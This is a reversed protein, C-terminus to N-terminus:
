PPGFSGQILNLLQDMIPDHFVMVVITAISLFPGYPIERTRQSILKVLAYGLGFFPALFFAVTPSQWGLMAGVGAGLVHFDAILQLDTRASGEGAFANDHGVPLATAVLLAM